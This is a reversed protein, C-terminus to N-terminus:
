GGYRLEPILLPIRSPDASARVYEVYRKAIEREYPSGSARVLVNKFFKLYADVDSFTIKDPDGAIVLGSRLVDGITWYLAPFHRIESRNNEWLNNVFVLHSLCALTLRIRVSGFLQRM